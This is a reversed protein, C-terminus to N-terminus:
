TFTHEETPFRGTKVDAVYADFAERMVASLDAYQKCFKTNLGLGLMDHMVLVQGDCAAGAGIGITPISLSETIEAALGGPVCELVLAFCGIAELGKAEDKLRAQSEPDRGQVKFGGFQNVSQPTLGIHGMVPIGANLMARIATGFKDAPGELKVAHMGGEAIFRGANRLAEEPSVQYSLFPMDGILLAHKTAHSVMKAHHIMTDMTVGLTDRQGMVATGLSDGVLIIDVRAADMLRACPYDYATLMTIKEGSRKQEQLSVITVPAM